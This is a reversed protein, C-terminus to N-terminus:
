LWAGHRRRMAGCGSGTGALLNQCIDHLQKVFHLSRRKTRVVPDHEISNTREPTGVAASARSSVLMVLDHCATWRLTVFIFWKVSQHSDQRKPRQLRRKKNPPQSV